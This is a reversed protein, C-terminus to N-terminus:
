LQLKPNLIAQLHQTPLSTVSLGLRSSLAFDKKAHKDGCFSAKNIFKSIAQVQRKEIALRHLQLILLNAAYADWASRAQFVPMTMSSANASYEILLSRTNGM